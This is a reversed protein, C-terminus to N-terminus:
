DLVLNCYGNNVAFGARLLGFPRATLTENAALRVSCSSVGEDKMLIYATDCLIQFPLTTEIILLRDSDKRYLIVGNVTGKSRKETAQIKLASGGSFENEMLAYTIAEIDWCIYGDSTFHSDRVAKYEEPSVTESKFNRDPTKLDCINLIVESLTFAPKFERKEYFRFLEETSPVLFATPYKRNIYDLIATSLGMGQHKKSTAVGYIYGAPLFAGNQYLSANLVTAMSVPSGNKIYVFTNEPKFRRNFFFDIYSDEDAFGEKWLIKLAPVMNYEAHVIM